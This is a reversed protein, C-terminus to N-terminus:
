EVTLNGFDADSIASPAGANGLASKTLMDSILAGTSKLSDLPDKYPLLAEARMDVLRQQVTARKDDSLKGTALSIKLGTYESDGELAASVTTQIAAFTKDISSRVGLLQTNNMNQRVIKNYEAAITNAVAQLKGTFETRKEDSDLQTHLNATTVLNATAALLAENKIAMDQLLTQVKLEGIKIERTVKNTDATSASQMAITQADVASKESADASTDAASRIDRSKSVLDQFEKSRTNFLEQRATDQQQQVRSSSAAAGGMSSAFDHGGGLGQLWGQMQEWALKNPDMMRQENARREEILAELGQREKQTYQSRGLSRQYAAENVDKMNAQLREDEVRKLNPNRPVDMGGLIKQLADQNVGEVAAPAGLVPTTRNSVLSAVGQPQPKALAPPITPDVAVAAPDVPTTSLKNLAPGSVAGPFKGSVAGPLNGPIAAQDTETVTLNGPTGPTIPVKNPHNAKAAAASIRAARQALTEGPGPAANKAKYIALLVTRQRDKDMELFLASDSIGVLALDEASPTKPGRKTVLGDSAYGVIGGEAMGM